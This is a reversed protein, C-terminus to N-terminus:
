QSKQSNLRSTKKLLIGKIHIKLIRLPVKIMFRIDRMPNNRLKLFKLYFNNSKIKQKKKKNGEFRNIIAKLSAADEFCYYNSARLAWKVAELDYKVPNLKKFPLIIISFISIILNMIISKIMDYFPIKIRNKVKNRLDEGYLVTSNDIVSCLVIKSPAFLAAFIENVRFIKHFTAHEWYHKKTLFHSIFMGTTQQVVGLIKKSITKNFERYNHKIELTFFYKEVNKIKQNSVNNKFIILLDCDSIKTNEQKSVTQSGFLMISIIKDLGIEKKILIIIDELYAKSNKNLHILKPDLEEKLKQYSELPTSLLM